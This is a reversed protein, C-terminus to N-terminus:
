IIESSNTEVRRMNMDDIMSEPRWGVDHTYTNYAIGDLRMEHCDCKSSPVNNVLHVHIRFLTTVELGM